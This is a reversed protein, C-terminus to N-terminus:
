AYTASARLDWSNYAIDRNTVQKSANYTFKHLLWGDASEALGRPAYGAYLVTGDANYALNMQMNSPIETYRHAFVDPEFGDKEIASPKVAGEYNLGNGAM